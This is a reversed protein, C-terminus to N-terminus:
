KLFTIQVSIKKKINELTRPLLERNSVLFIYVNSQNLNERPKKWHDKATHSHSPASPQPHWVAMGGAGDVEWYPINKKYGKVILIGLAAIGMQFLFFIEVSELSKLCPIDWVKTMIMVYLFIIKIHGFYITGCLRIPQKSVMPTIYYISDDKTLHSQKNFIPTNLTFPM